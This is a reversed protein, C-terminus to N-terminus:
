KYSERSRRLPLDFCKKACEAVAEARIVAAECFAEPVDKTEHVECEYHTGNLNLYRVARARLRRVAASDLGTQRRALIHLARDDNEEFLVSV